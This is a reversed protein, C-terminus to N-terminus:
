NFSRINWSYSQDSTDTFNTFLCFWTLPILPPDKGIWWWRWWIPMLKFSWHWWSPDSFKSSACQMAFFCLELYIQISAQNSFPYPCRALILRHHHYFLWWCSAYVYLCRGAWSTEDLGLFYFYRNNQVCITTIVEILWNYMIINYYKITTSNNLLFKCNWLKKFLRRFGMVPMSVLSLNCRYGVTYSGVIQRLKTWHFSLFGHCRGWFKSKLGANCKIQKLHM